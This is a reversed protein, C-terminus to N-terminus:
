AATRAAVSRTTRNAAPQHHRGPILDAREDPTYGGWIGYREDAALASALCAAQVPCGGCIAKEVSSDPAAMDSGATDPAAPDPAEPDPFWDGGGVSCAAHTIWQGLVPIPMM